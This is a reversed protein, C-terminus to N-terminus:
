PCSAKWMINNCRGYRKAFDRVTLHNRYTNWMPHYPVNPNRLRGYGYVRWPEALAKQQVDAPIEKVMQPCVTYTLGSATGGPTPTAVPVSTATPMPTSQGGPPPAPLNPDPAFLLPPCRYPYVIIPCGGCPPCPFPYCNDPSNTQASATGLQWGTVVLAATLCLSLAKTSSTRVMPIFEKRLVLAPVPNMTALAPRPPM